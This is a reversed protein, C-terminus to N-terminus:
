LANRAINKFFLGNLLTRGSKRSFVLYIYTVMQLFSMLPHFFWYAKKDRVVLYLTHILIFPPVLVYLMWLIVKKTFDEDFAWRMNRTSSHELLHTGFDRQWKKVWQRIGKVHHHYVALGEIFSVKHYGKEIITQFVDNDGIFGEGMVIDRILATRYTLGNAGWILPRHQDVSFLYCHREKIPVSSAAHLYRSLNQNIFHSLPDNQILAYYKNLAPDDDTAAIRCWACSLDPQTRFLEAVTFLWDNSALENDAAFIVFIEGTARPMCVKIGFDALKKPNDLLVVCEYSAAIDKTKDQSGGDVVVIEIKDRPYDQRLISDLCNRIRKEENYVPLFFSFKPLAPNM